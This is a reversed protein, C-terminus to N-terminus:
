TPRKAPQKLLIDGIKILEEYQVEFPLADHSIITRGGPSPHDNPDYNEFSSGSRTINIRVIVKEHDKKLTISARKDKSCRGYASGKGSLLNLIKWFVEKNLFVKSACYPATFVVDNSSEDIKVCM